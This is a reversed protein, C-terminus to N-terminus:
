GMVECYIKDMLSGVSSYDHVRKCWEYTEKSKEELDCLNRFTNVLTEVTAGCNIVPPDGYGAISGMRELVNKSIYSVVPIGQAMAEIASNGYFGISNIQDFYLTASAKKQISDRYGINDYINTQIFIGEDQVRKLAEVLISTGKKNRASPIHCLIIPSSARWKREMNHMDFAAPTWYKAGFEPYALDPTLVTKIDADYQNIDYTPCACPNNGRRFFSGSVTLIWPKERKIKVGPIFDEAPPDDGKFHIIDCDDIVAQIRDIDDRQIQVKTNDGDVPKAYSPLRPLQAPYSVPMIAIPIVSHHSYLNAAQSFRYASGAFDHRSILAVKYGRRTVIKMKDVDKFGECGEQSITRATPRSTEITELLRTYNAAAEEYSPDIVLSETFYHIADEINGREFAIVGLNNYAEKCPSLGNTLKLFLERAADTKGHSFLEEGLKLQNEVSNNKHM